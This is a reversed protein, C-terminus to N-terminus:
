VAKKRKRIISMVILFAPLMIEIINAYVGFNHPSLSYVFKSLSDYSTVALIMSFAAMPIILFKYTKLGLWQGIGTVGAYLYISIKTLLLSIWVAVMVAEIREFFQAISVMRTLSFVALTLNKAEEAGFVSVVMISLAVLLVSSVTNAVLAYKLVNKKDSVYPFLMSVLIVEGTWAIPVVTRIWIPRWGQELVPRLGEYHAEKTVLVIILVLSAITILLTISNARVIGELGRHVCFAAAFTIYVIFVPVPTEPMIATNLVEAFSRMLIISVQLFFALFVVSVLGGGWNGLLSVCIQILTLDPHRQALYIHLGYTMYGCLGVIAAAIWADKEGGPTSSVIPLFVVMTAIRNAALLFGIQAASIVPKHNSM